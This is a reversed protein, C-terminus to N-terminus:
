VAFLLKLFRPKIKRFATISVCSDILSTNTETRPPKFTLSRPSTVPPEFCRDEIVSGLWEGPVAAAAAAAVSQEPHTHESFGGM